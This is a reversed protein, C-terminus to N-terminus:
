VLRTMRSRVLQVHLAGAELWKKIWILTSETQVAPYCLNQPLWHHINMGVIKVLWEDSMQANRFNDLIDWWYVKDSSNWLFGFHSMAKEGRFLWCDTRLWIVTCRHHHKDGRPGLSSLHARPPYVGRFGEGNYLLSTHQIYTQQHMRRLELLLRTM